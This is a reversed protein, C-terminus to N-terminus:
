INFNGDLSILLIAKKVKINAWSSFIKLKGLRSTDKKLLSTVEFIHTQTAIKTHITNVEMDYKVGRTAITSEIEGIVILLNIVMIM